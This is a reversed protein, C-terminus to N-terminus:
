RDFEPSERGAEKTSRRIKRPSSASAAQQAALQRWQVISDLIEDSGTGLRKV